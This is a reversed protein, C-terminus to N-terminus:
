TVASLKVFLTGGTEGSSDSCKQMLVIFVFSSVFAKKGWGAIAAETIIRLVEKEMQSNNCIEEWTGRVQMQEALAMLQRHNPVVFSIVYSQDSLFSWLLTWM